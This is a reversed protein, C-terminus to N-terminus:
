FKIYVTDNFLRRLAREGNAKIHKAGIGPLCLYEDVGWELKLLM